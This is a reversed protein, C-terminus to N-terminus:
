GFPRVWVFSEDERPNPEEVIGREKVNKLGHGDVPTTPRAPRLVAVVQRYIALLYLAMVEVRAKLVGSQTVMHIARDLPDIEM